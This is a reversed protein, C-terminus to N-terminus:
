EEIEAVLVLVVDEGGGERAGRRSEILLGEGDGGGEM